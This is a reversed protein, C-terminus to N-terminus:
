EHSSRNVPWPPLNRSKRVSAPYCGLSRPAGAYVAASPSNEEPSSRSESGAKPHGGQVTFRNSRASPSRHLIQSKRRGEEQRNRQESLLSNRFDTEPRLSIEKLQRRVHVESFSGAYGDVGPTVDEHERTAVGRSRGIARGGRLQEFEIGVSLVNALDPMVEIGPAKRVGDLDVLFVVDPHGVLAGVHDDLEARLTADQHDESALLFSGVLAGARQSM